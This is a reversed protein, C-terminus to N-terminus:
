NRDIASQPQSKDSENVFEHKQIFYTGIKVLEEELELMDNLAEEYIINIGYEDSVIIDMESELIEIKDQKGILKRADQNYNKKLNDNDM